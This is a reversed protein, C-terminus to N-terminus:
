NGYPQWVTIGSDRARQVMDATGSGGPFAIVYDPKMIDLMAQNRKNGAGNGFKGWLAPIEVPYIGNEGAWLKAMHDAGKVGGQIVISPKFPLQSMALLFQHWDNYNRGGCILTKM